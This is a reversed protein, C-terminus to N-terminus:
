VHNSCVALDDQKKLNLVPSFPPSYTVSRYLYVAAADKFMRNVQSCQYLSPYDDHLWDLIHMLADYTLKETDSSSAEGTHDKVDM